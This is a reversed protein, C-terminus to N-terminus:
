AKQLLAAFFGDKNLDPDPTTRLWGKKTDADQHWAWDPIGAPKENVLDRGRMQHEGEEPFLSCVAYVLKGGPKLWTLARDLLEGQLPVHQLQDKRAHIWPWEPHRRLTGSASCPADLLIADFGQTPEWEMADACVVDAKLWTRHLNERLRKLRGKSIDLATVNAGAAALQLTKGGPAACIDLVRLGRVDGLMRVPLSAALDQVWWDGDDFGPLVRPDGAPVRAHLPLLCNESLGEPVSIDPKLSLDMEPMQRLGAQIRASTQADFDAAWKEGMWEPLAAAAWFRAEAGADNVLKRLVANVLGKLAKPTLNVAENLAAHASSGMVLLEVTGLRLPGLAAPSLGAIPRSLLPAFAADLAHHHRFTHSILARTFAQDRPHLQGYEPSRRCTEEISLRLAKVQGILKLTLLRPNKLQQSELARKSPNPKSM